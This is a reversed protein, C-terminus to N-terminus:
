LLCINHTCMQTGLHSGVVYAKIFFILFFFKAYVDDYLIKASRNKIGRTPLYM